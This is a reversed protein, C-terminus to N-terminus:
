VGREIAYSLRRLTEEKGFLWALEFPGPSTQKGSLAVRFPWLTEGTELGRDAMWAKVVREADAPNEPWTALQQLFARLEVLREKAVTLTSKKWALPAEQMYPQFYWQPFADLRRLRPQELVVARRFFENEANGTDVRTRIQTALTDPDMRRIYEGNLWELKEFNVKAPSSHVKTVDFAAILEERSYIEQEGSPNWGLLAVFNVLADPLCWQLFQSVNTDGDRKSLKGKAGLLLPLHAYVPEEWGFARFLLAHKPLSPLWEDARIVHSTMMAHDDVVHALHYTPFGDSKLLVFDDLTAADIIIDGHICDSVTVKSLNESIRFRIVSGEEPVDTRARCHGDYKPPLKRASLDERLQTLREPSCDCRYAKEEAILQGAAQRYMALRESQVYPGYPGGIDPGEDWTIGVSQLQKMLREASGSVLRSQDTDEIRLYFVGGHHRAHLYAYLTTRLSGLHLEGTPSPAFRTRIHM